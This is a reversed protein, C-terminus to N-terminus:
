SFCGEAAVTERMALHFKREVARVREIRSAGMFVRYISEKELASRELLRKELRYLAQISKDCVPYGRDDVSIEATFSVTSINNIDVLKVDAEPTVLLNSLGALDPVHQAEVIMQKVNDVFRSTRSKLRQLWAAASLSPPNDSNSCLSGHLSLLYDADLRSWPDLVVGAVYEQLGCLVIHYRGGFQYDVLFEESKAHCLPSLYAEIIKVRELEEQAEGLDKFRTRFIRLMKLPRARPYRHLGDLLVGRKELAVDEPDLVEMIHSRLGARFHRRFRYRGSDHIFNLALVDEESLCPKDRIDIAENM